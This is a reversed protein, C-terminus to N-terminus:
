RRALTELENRRAPLDASLPAAIPLSARARRSRVDARAGARRSWAIRIPRVRLLKRWTLHDIVGTARLGRDAQFARVARQTKPGFIGAVTFRSGAGRLHQQAWVVMDGRDGRSLTPLEIRARYRPVGTTIDSGLSAWTRDSTEQWSWWSEPLGGFSIAYRRFNQIERQSISGYTQGIPYIPREYIANVPMSHEYVERVTVGIADWYM